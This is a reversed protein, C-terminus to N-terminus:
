VWSINRKASMAADLCGLFSTNLLCNVIAVLAVLVSAPTSVVGVGDGDGDADGVLVDSGDVLEIALLLGGETEVVGGGLVGLGEVEIIIFVVEDGRGGGGVVCLSAGEGVVVGAGVVDGGTTTEVGMLVVVSGPPEVIVTKLVDVWPPSVGVFVPVDVDDDADPADVALKCDPAFTVELPKPEEPVMATATTTGITTTARRTM